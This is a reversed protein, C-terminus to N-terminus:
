ALMNAALLEFRFTAGGGPKAPLLRLAGQSARTAEAAIALGLGAGDHHGRSARVFRDFISDRADDPVGPGTDAVDLLLTPGDIRASLEISGATTHSAANAVVNGIAESLLSADGMVAYTAPCDVRIEVGAEPTVDAVIGDLLPRLRVLTISPSVGERQLRALMLLARLLRGIRDCERDIHGLFRERERPEDKAGALLAATASAIATVPTRLQHAANEVFEADAEATRVRRSVDDFVLITAQVTGDDTRLPVASVEAVLERGTPLRFGVIEQSVREGAFARVSPRRHQPLLRGEQDYQRISELRGDWDGLIEMARRNASRATWSGPEAVIVGLPLEDYVEQLAAVGEDLDQRLRAAANAADVERSVDTVAWVVHEASVSARIEAVFRAGGADRMAVRRGETAPTAGGLWRRLEARDEPEVFDLLREGALRLIGAGLLEAAARNAETLTGTRDSVLLAVPASDYPGRRDPEDGRAASTGDSSDRDRSADSVANSWAHQPM